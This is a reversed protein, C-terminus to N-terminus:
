ERFREPNRKWCGNELSLAMDYDGTRYNEYFISYAQIESMGYPPESQSHAQSTVAFLLAISLIYKKM